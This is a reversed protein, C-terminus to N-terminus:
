GDTWHRDWDLRDNERIVFVGSPGDFSEVEIVRDVAVLCADDVNAFALFRLSFNEGIGLSGREVVIKERPKPSFYRESAGRKIGLPEISFAVSIACMGISPAVAYRFNHEMNRRHHWRIEYSVRLANLLFTVNAVIKDVDDVVVGPDRKIEVSELRLIVIEIDHNSRFKHCRRKWMSQGRVSAIAIGAFTMSMGLRSEAEGHVGDM